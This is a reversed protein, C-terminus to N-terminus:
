DEPQSVGGGGLIGIELHRSPSWGWAPTVTGWYSLAHRLPHTDEAAHDYIPWQSARRVGGGVRNNIHMM